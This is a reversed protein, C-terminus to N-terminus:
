PKRGYKRRTSFLELVESKKFRIRSNIRYFPLIKKKKWDHITVKTVGFFKAVEEITMLPDDQPEQPKGSHTELEERVSEKILLKLEQKSTVVIENNM